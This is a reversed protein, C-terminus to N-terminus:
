KASSPTFWRQNGKDDRLSLAPGDKDVLLLARAKGSQSFLALGPEGKDADFALVARPKGSEDRLNLGSTGLVASAGVHKDRMVLGVMGKDADLALVAREMGSKDVLVIRTARIEDLLKGQAAINGQPNMMIAVIAVFFFAVAGVWSLIKQRKVVKLEKEMMELREEMTM